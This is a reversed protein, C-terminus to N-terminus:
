RRRTCSIRSDSLIMSCTTLAIRGPGTITSSRLIAQGACSDIPESPM